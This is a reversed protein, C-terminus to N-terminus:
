EEANLEHWQAILGDRNAAAGADEAAIKLLAAIRRKTSM